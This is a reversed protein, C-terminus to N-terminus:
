NIEYVVNVEVQIVMEGPSVPVSSGGAMDEAVAMEYQRQVGGGGIYTNVSQVQVIEANAAQALVDARGAANQMAAELAQAIASERDSVDFSVGNITNAGAGIAANLVDGLKDLDHVTVLVSNNVIYTVSQLQNDDDYRQRPYVSFNSTQIDTEAIELEQLAAMIANAIETNEASAEDANEGQTQVGISVEAMDPALTVSGSGNVNITRVEAPTTNVAAGSCASLGLAALALLGIFIMKNKM